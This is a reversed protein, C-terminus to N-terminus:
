KRNLILFTGRHLNKQRVCWRVSNMVESATVTDKKELDMITSLVAIFPATSKQERKRVLNRKGFNKEIKASVDSLRM